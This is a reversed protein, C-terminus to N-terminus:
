AEARRSRAPAPLPVRAGEGTVPRRAATEADGLRRDLYAELLELDAASTMM